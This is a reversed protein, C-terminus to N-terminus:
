MLVFCELYLYSIHTVCLNQETRQNQKGQKQAGAIRDRWVKLFCQVIARGHRICNISVAVGSAMNCPRVAVGVFIHHV